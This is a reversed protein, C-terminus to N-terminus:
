VMDVHVVQCVRKHPNSSTCTEGPTVKSTGPAGPVTGPSLRMGVVGNWAAPNRLSGGLDSGTGGWVQLLCYLCHVLNICYGLSHMCHLAIHYRSRAGQMEFAGRDLMRGGGGLVVRGRGGGWVCLWQRRARCEIFSGGLMVLVDIM